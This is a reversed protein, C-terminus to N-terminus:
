ICSLHSHRVFPHPAAQRTSAGHNLCTKGSPNEDRLSSRHCAYRRSHGRHLCQHRHHLRGQGERKCERRLSLTQATNAQSSCTRRWNSPTRGNDAAVRATVRQQRCRSRFQSGSHAWRQQSRPIRQGRQEEESPLTRCVSPEGAPSAAKGTHVTTRAQYPPGVRRSGAAPVQAWTTSRSALLLTAACMYHM